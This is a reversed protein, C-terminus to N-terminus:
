QKVEVMDFIRKVEDVKPITKARVRVKGKSYMKLGMSAKSITSGWGQTKLFLTAPHVRGREKVLNAFIKTHKAGKSLAPYAACKRKLKEIADELVNIGVPCVHSCEYCSVCAYVDGKLALSVRDFGDLPNLAFKALQVLSAPGAFATHNADSFVPCAGTCVYCEMCNMLNYAEKMDKHTIPEPFGEYPKKRILYPKMELTVREFHSRDVVLDRIVPFNPLPEIIMEKQAAEWCALVPKGNVTVGCLGCRKVGCFWRYGVGLGLNEVAYDLVDLIRMDKEYPVEYTEYRPKEKRTPDYRFVRALIREEIDM